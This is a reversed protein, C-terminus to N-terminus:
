VECRLNSGVDTANFLCPQPSPFVLTVVYSIVIHTLFFSVFNPYQIFEPLVSWLIPRKSGQMFVSYPTPQNDLLFHRRDRRTNTQTPFIIATQLITAKKLFHVHQAYFPCLVTEMKTFVMYKVYESNRRHAPSAPEDLM